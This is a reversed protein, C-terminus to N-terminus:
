RDYMGQKLSGHKKKSKTSLPIGFYDLNNKCKSKPQSVGVFDLNVKIVIYNNHNIYYICYGFHDLTHVMYYVYQFQTCCWITNTQPVSVSDGGYKENGWTVVTGNTLKLAFAFDTSYITDVNNLQLQANSNGNSSVIEGDSTKVM